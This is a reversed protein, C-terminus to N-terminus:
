LIRTSEEEAKETGGIVAEQRPSTKKWDAAYNGSKQAAPKSEARAHELTPTDEVKPSFPLVGL